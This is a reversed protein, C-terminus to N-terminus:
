GENREKIRLQGNSPSFIEHLENNIENKLIM